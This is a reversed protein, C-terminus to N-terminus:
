SLIEDLDQVCLDRFGERIQDLQIQVIVLNLIKSLGQVRQYFDRLPDM